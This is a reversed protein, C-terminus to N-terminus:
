EVEAEYHLLWGEMQLGGNEKKHVTAHMVSAFDMFITFDACDEPYVLVVGELEDGNAKVRQMLKNSLDLLGQKRESSLEKSKKWCNQYLFLGEYNLKM